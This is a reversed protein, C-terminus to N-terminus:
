NGVIVPDIQVIAEAVNLYPIGVHLLLNGWAQNEVEIVRPCLSGAEIYNLRWISRRRSSENRPNLRKQKFRRDSIRRGM